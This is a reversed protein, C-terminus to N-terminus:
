GVTFIGLDLPNYTFWMFLVAQLIFLVVTAASCIAPLKLTNDRLKKMRCYLWIFAVAESIYFIAMDFWTVSYGLIGQYTYFMVPILWTAMLGAAMNLVIHCYWVRRAEPDNDYREGNVLRKILMILVWICFPFFLMKMHEWTSEGVPFIFGLIYNNGSWEYVWHGLTGMVAVFIIEAIFYFLM